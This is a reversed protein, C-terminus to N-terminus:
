NRIGLTPQKIHRRLGCQPKNEDSPLLGTWEIINDEWRARPRKKIDVVRLEAKYKQKKKM